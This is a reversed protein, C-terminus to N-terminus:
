GLVGPLWGLCHDQRLFRLQALNRKVMEIVDRFIATSIPRFGDLTDLSVVGRLRGCFSQLMWRVLCDPRSVASSRESGFQKLLIGIRRHYVNTGITM